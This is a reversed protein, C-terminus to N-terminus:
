CENEVSKEIAKLVYYNSLTGLYGIKKIGIRRLVSRLKMRTLIFEIVKNHQNIKRNLKDIKRTDLINKFSDPLIPEFKFNMAGTHNLLNTTSFPLNMNEIDLNESEFFDKQWQRGERIEKPLRLMTTAVNFNLFPTWVPIGFYEPVSTLYSLLVMKMRMMSVVQILPNNLSEKNQEFYRKRISNKLKRKFFCNDLYVGHSYGLINVDKENSIESTKISGAWADGIIGSLLTSRNNFDKLSIIKKYFEIHYMGHLHTSFGFFRHWDNIHINFNSLKIQEWKIKLIDSTKKAFVVEHSKNQNNSIGYTFSHIRSKNNIGWNLLRSDYGGSTPIIINGSVISEVETIYEKIINIADTASSEKKFLEPNLVPDDKFEVKIAGGEIILTSYYRLFEVDKFPTREFISYGFELFNSLGEEDFSKNKLCFDPITSVICEKKNYFVPISGLWDNELILSNDNITLILNRDLLDENQPFSFKIKKLDKPFDGIYWISIKYGIKSNINHRKITESYFKIDPVSDKSVCFAVPKFM